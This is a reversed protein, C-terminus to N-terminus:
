EIEEVKIKYLDWKVANFFAKKNREEHEQERRILANEARIKHTVNNNEILEQRNLICDLHEMNETIFNIACKKVTKQSQEYVLKNHEKEFAQFSTFDTALEEVQSQIKRAMFEKFMKKSRALSIGMQLNVAFKDIEEPFQAAVKITTGEKSYFSIYVKDIAFNHLNKYDVKKSLAAASLEALEIQKTITLVTKPDLYKYTHHEEDPEMQTSSVYVIFDSLKFKKRLYENQIVIRDENALQKFWVKLPAKRGRVNVSVTMSTEPLLELTSVAGRQGNGPQLTNLAVIRDKVNNVRWNCNFQCM